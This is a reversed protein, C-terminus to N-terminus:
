PQARPPGAEALVQEPPMPPASGARLGRGLGQLLLRRDASALFTRAWRALTSGGYLAKERRSLSDSRTFMWAKNRVEFFFREGPDADTSGFSRTKHVVVSAPCFLWVGHRLLRSTYEFDDNWLFYAAEPLGHREAARADVLVSVFSASRIPRCGVGAAADIAARTAGPRTRPTNMPHNRGDTWVVRSAMVAPRSGPYRDRAAVLEALATPEPITDDDLLWIADAPGSLATVIGAAFGGAGGTNHRLTVAEVDLTGALLEDTGDTSANDVVIVRQPPVTQARLAGLCEALLDKRNFTVVVAAVAAASM